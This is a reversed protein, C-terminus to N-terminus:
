VPDEFGVVVDEIVAADGPVREDILGPFDHGDSAAIPYVSGSLSIL